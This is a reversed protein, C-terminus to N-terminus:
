RRAYSSRRLFPAELQALAGPAYGLIAEATMANAKALVQGAATCFAAQATPMAFFNYLRTAHVDYAGTWKAGHRARFPAVEAANAAALVAKHRALMRNYAPAVGSTKATRCSLAAVNLASRLHWLAENSSLNANIPASPRSAVVPPQPVIPSPRVAVPSQVESACGALLATGLLVSLTWGKALKHMIMGEEPRAAQCGSNGQSKLRDTPLNAFHLRRAPSFRYLFPAERKRAAGKPGFNFSARQDLHRIMYDSNMIEIDGSVAIM